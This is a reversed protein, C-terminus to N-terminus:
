KNNKNKHAYQFPTIEKYKKFESIFYNSYNFGCRMAIEAITYKNSSLLAEAKQLRKFKIYKSVGFGTCQTFTRSFHSESMGFKSSLLKLNLDDELHNSIYEAAKQIISENETLATSNADPKKRSLIVMLERLLNKCQLLSFDKRVSYEDHIKFFLSRIEKSAEASPLITKEKELKSVIPFYEEGLFDSTFSILIRKSSKGYDYTTKHINGQKIFVTQGSEVNLITNEIFYKANGELLFYLEHYKHFHESLLSTESGNRIHINTAIGNQLTNSKREM